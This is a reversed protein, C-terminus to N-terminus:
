RKKGETTGLISRKSFSDITDGIIVEDRDRDNDKTRRKLSDLVKDLNNISISIDDFKFILPNGVFCEKNNDYVEKIKDNLIELLRYQGKTVRRPLFVLMTNINGINLTLCVNGDRNVNYEFNGWEDIDNSNDNTKYIARYMNKLINEHHWNYGYNSGDNMIIQKDTILIAAGRNGNDTFFKELDFKEYEGKVFEQVDILNDNDDM